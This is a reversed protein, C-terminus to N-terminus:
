TGDRCHRNGHLKIIAKCCDDFAKRAALSDHRVRLYGHGLNEEISLECMRGQALMKKTFAVADDLVPDHKAASIYCPPILALSESLLPANLTTVNEPDGGLYALFFEKLLHLPLIPAFENEIFSSSEARSGLGPYIMVLGNINFPIANSLCVATALNAGASDGSLVLSKFQLLPSSKKDGVRAIADICDHLAAPYPHEPALRYEIALVQSSTQHCIDTCIQQHTDLNGLVWGGGHLYVTLKDPIYSHTPSYSRLAIQQGSRGLVSFDRHVVTHISTHEHAQASGDFQARNNALKPINVPGAADVELAYDRYVPELLERYKNHM